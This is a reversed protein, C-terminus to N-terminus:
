NSPALLSEREKYKGERLGKWLVPNRFQLDPWRRLRRLFDCAALRIGAQPRRTGMRAQGNSDILTCRRFLTDLMLPSQCHSRSPVPDLLRKDYGILRSFDGDRNELRDVLHM